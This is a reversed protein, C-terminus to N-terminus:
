PSATGYLRIEPFDVTDGTNGCSSQKALRLYRGDFDKGVRWKTAESSYLSSYMMDVNTYATGDDSKQPSFCYSSNSTSSFFIQLKGTIKKPLVFVLSSDDSYYPDMSVSCSTNEDGDLLANSCTATSWNALSVLQFVRKTPFPWDLSLDLHEPRISGNSLQVSLTASAQGYANSVLLNYTQGMTLSASHMVKAVVQASTRSVIQLATGLGQVSVRTTDNLNQGTIVFENQANTTVSTVVPKKSEDCALSVGMESPSDGLVKMAVVQEGPVVTHTQTGVLWVPEITENDLKAAFRGGGKDDVSFAGACGGAKPFALLDFRLTKGPEVEATMRGGKAVPGVLKGLLSSAGSSCASGDANSVNVFYCHDAQFTSGASSLKADRSTLNALRAETKEFRLQVVGAPAGFCGGFAVPLTFAVAQLIRTDMMM